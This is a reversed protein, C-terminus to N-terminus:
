IFVTDTVAIEVYPSLPAVFTPIYFSDIKYLLPNYWWYFIPQDQHLYKQMRIKDYLDELEEDSDSDDDDDYYDEDDDDDDEYKKKRRRKRKRKSKGGKGGGNMNNDFKKKSARIGDLEKKTAKVKLENIEYDVMDDEISEKVLFHYLSNDSVRELSFAFRPVNNTFLSSLEKWATQAADSPTKGSFLNKFEGKIYPNFLRYNVM